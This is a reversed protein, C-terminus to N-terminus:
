GYMVCNDDHNLIINLEKQLEANSSVCEVMEDSIRQMIGNFKGQQELNFKRSAQLEFMQFLLEIYKRSIVDFEEISKDIAETM